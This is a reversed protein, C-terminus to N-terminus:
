RAIQVRDRLAAAPANSGLERAAKHGSYV